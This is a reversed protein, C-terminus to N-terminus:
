KNIKLFTNKRFYQIKIIFIELNVTYICQLRVTPNTFFINRPPAESDDSVVATFVVNDGDQREKIDLKTKDPAGTIIILIM